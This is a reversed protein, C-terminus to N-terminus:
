KDWEDNEEAMRCMAGWMDQQFVQGIDIDSGINM